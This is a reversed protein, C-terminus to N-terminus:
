SRPSAQQISQKIANVGLRLFGLGAGALAGWVWEPISIWGFGEAVGLAVMLLAVLYTKKGKFFEVIAM